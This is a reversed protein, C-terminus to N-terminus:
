FQQFHMKTIEYVLDEKSWPSTFLEYEMAVVADIDELEMKRILM